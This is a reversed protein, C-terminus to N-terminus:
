RTLKDVLEQMQTRTDFLLMIQGAGGRKEQLKVRVGLASEIRSEIDRVTATDITKATYTRGTNRRSSNKVMRETDAVSMKDNIIKQALETPNEAVAIARAHSASIEGRKVMDKVDNPLTDLRM